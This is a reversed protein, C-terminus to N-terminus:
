LQKMEKIIEYRPIAGWYLVDVGTIKSLIYAGYNYDKRIVKLLLPPSRLLLIDGNAYKWRRPFDEYTPHM